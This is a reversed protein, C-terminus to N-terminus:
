CKLCITELDRPVSPQLRRVPVPEQTRHQALTDLATAGKFPPRGALMEYLIVGLAYVDCAPGPAGKGEAQEPTMYEATGLLMGSATQCDSGSLLKAVGFDCVKLQGDATLLINAPKLDRHIIGHRHAHHAARALPELWAAAQRPPLPQGALRAAL